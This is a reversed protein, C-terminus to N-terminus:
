RDQRIGSDPLEVPIPETAELFVWKKYSWYRFLTGLGVGLINAINLSLGDHLHLTYKAFGIVLLGFLLAIGNLLFFLFYERGLGSQERHRFTWYRNGVYAFTSSITTAIVKSTLPGWDLGLLFLNYVATDLVFAVAGISGFKALEHVLSAFRHYLRKVLDM